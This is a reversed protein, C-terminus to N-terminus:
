KLSPFNPEWVDCYQLITEKVSKDEVNLGCSLKDIWNKLKEVKESTNFYAQGKRTFIASHIKIEEKSLEFGLKELEDLILSFSNQEQEKHNKSSINGSHIRYHTLYESLNAVKYKDSIQFWLSYDECHPYEDDYQFEKFVSARFMTTPHSIPNLFYKFVQIEENTEPYAVYQLINGKENILIHNTGVMAYEQNERLFAVQKAIRDPQMLDDSDLRAIYIGKAKSIGRNLAYVIGKNTTNQFIKIRRDNIKSVIELTKDESADDILLIEFNQYVQNLVSQLCEKIYKEANYCPIVVSVLENQAIISKKEPQKLLKKYVQLTQEAMKEATLTTKVKQFAKQARKKALQPYTLSQYIKDALDDINFQIKEPTFKIHTKLGNEDDILENLGGVDTVIIPLKSAMMEIATYSCQEAYSPIVGVDALAYFEYLQEKTLNGTLTIQSYCHMQKYLWDYDGKGCIVLRYKKTNHKVLLKEFTEILETIGKMQTIRGAFLIVKEDEPFHYKRRLQQKTQTTNIEQLDIGNYITTIKEQPIEFLQHLVNQADHTVTIFYDTNQYFFVDFNLKNKQWFSLREKRVFTIHTNYFLSYNHIMNDRWQIYHITLLITCKLQQKLLRAICLHNLSNFHFLINESNKIRKKIESVIKQNSVDVLYTNSVDYPFFLHKAGREDIEEKISLSVNAALWIYSVSELKSLIIEQYSSLGNYIKTKYYGIFYIHM